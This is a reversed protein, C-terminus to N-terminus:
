PISKTTCAPRPAQINTGHFCAQWVGYDLQDVDGDQDLDAVQCDQAVMIAPGQMCAVLVNFDNFDVDGDGGAPEIDPVLTPPPPNGITLYLNPESITLSVEDPPNPGTYVLTPAAAPPVMTAASVLLYNGEALPQGSVSTVNVNLATVAALNLEGTASVQDDTTSNPTDLRVNITANDNVILGGITLTGPTDGGPALVGSLNVTAGITGTGALTGGLIGLDVDPAAVRYTGTGVHTGTVRVVGALFEANGDGTVNNPFTYTDNRNFRLTARSGLTVDAPGISGTTGGNGISLTIRDNNITAGTAGGGGGIVTPGTYDNDNSTLEVMGLRSATSNANLHVTLSGPGTLKGTLTATATTNSDRNYTGVELNGDMTIPSDITKNGRYVQLGGGAPAVLIPKNIVATSANPDLSAYFGLQGGNLTFTGSGLMSNLGLYLAGGGTVEMNNLNPDGTNMWDIETGNAPNGGVNVDVILDHGNGQIFADPGDIWIISRGATSGGTGIAAIKSNGTLILGNVHASTSANQQTSVLAGIGGVGMGAITVVEKGLGPTNGGNNHIDLTAGDLVTVGSAASGGAGLANNGITRLTGAAVVMEGTFGANNGNVVLTTGAGEKRLTGAGTLANSLATLDALNLALTGEDLAIATPSSFVGSNAFTLTGTGSKAIHNAAFDTNAFTVNGAGSVTFDSAVSLGGGIFTYDHGAGNVFSATSPSVTGVLNVAPSTSGVNNFTVSDGNYFRNDPPAGVAGTWNVTAGVDWANNNVGGVWILAAPDGVVVLNLQNPVSSLTASSQRPSLVVGTLSFSGVDVAPGVYDILRYSGSGLTGSTQTVAITTTGNLTLAGGVALRDNAGGPNGSLEYDLQAGNNLTLDGTLTLTGASDGPAIINSNGAIVSGLFTGAGKLDQEIGLTLTGGPLGSADFTAGNKVVIASSSSISGTAGLSLTGQEVVTDGTYTNAGTLTWTGTGLKSVGWTGGDLNGGASPLVAGSISGSVLGKGAGALNFTGPGTTWTTKVITGSIEFLDDPATGEAAITFNNNTGQRDSGLRGSLVNHGGLSIIHPANNARAQMFIEEALSIGGPVVSNSLILANSVDGFLQTFGTTTELSGPAGGSDNRVYVTDAFRVYVLGGWDGTSGIIAKGGAQGNVDIRTMRTTPVIGGALTITRGANPALTLIRNITSITFDVPPIVTIDGGFANMAPSGSSGGGGMQFTGTNIVLNSNGPATSGAYLPSNRNMRIAANNFTVVGDTGLFTDINGATGTTGITIQGPGSFTYNPIPGATEVVPPGFQYDASFGIYRISWDVPVTLDTPAGNNIFRAEDATGPAAPDWNAAATVDNTATSKYLRVAAAAEQSWGTLVLGGCLVLARLLTRLNSYM